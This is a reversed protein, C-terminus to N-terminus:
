TFIKFFAFILISIITLGIFHPLYGFNEKETYYTIPNKWGGLIRLLTAGTYKLIKVFGWFLIEAFFWGIFEVIAEFIVTM